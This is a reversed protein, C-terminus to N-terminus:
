ATSSTVGGWVRPATAGGPFRGGGWGLHPPPQGWEKPHRWALFVAGEGRLNLRPLFLVM